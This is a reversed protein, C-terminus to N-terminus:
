RKGKKRSGKGRGKDPNPEREKPPEPKAPKEVKDPKPKDGAPLNIDQQTPISKM